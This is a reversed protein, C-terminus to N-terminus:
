DGSPHGTFAGQTETSLSPVVVRFCFSLSGIRIRDGDALPTAATVRRDNIYTGNKSGLDEVTASNAGVVLRVHRRSVTTSRLLIM